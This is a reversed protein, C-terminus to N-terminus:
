GSSFFSPLMTDLNLGTHGHFSFFVCLAKFIEDGSVEAM